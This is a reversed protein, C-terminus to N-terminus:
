ANALSINSTLIVFTLVATLWINDILYDFNLIYNLFDEFRTDFLLHNIYAQLYFLHNELKVATM